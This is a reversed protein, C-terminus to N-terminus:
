NFVCNKKKKLIALNILSSGGTFIVLNSNSIYKETNGEVFKFNKRLKYDLKKDYKVKPHICFIIKSKYNKKFSFLLNNLNLYYEKMRIKIESHKLHERISTDPHLLYGSDVVVIYKKKSGKKKSKLRLLEEDYFISNIRKINQFYNFIKTNFIKYIRNSLSNKLNLIRLSSTEFYYNIKPVIGAVTLLRYLFYYLKINIFFKASSLFNDRLKEKDGMGVNLQFGWNSILILKVKLIKLLIHIIISNPNGYVPGIGYINKKSAFSLLESFNKPRFYKVDKIKKKFFNNQSKILLFNTLDIIYLIKINNIKKLYQILKYKKSIDGIENDIIYSFIKKRM